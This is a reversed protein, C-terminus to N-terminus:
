DMGFAGGEGALHRSQGAISCTFMYGNFNNKFEEFSGM